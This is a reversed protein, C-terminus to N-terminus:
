ISCTQTTISDGRVSRAHHNWMDQVMQFGGRASTRGLKPETGDLQEIYNTLGSFM